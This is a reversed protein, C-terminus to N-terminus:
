LSAIYAKWEQRKNQVWALNHKADELQRELSNICNKTSRELEIWYLEKSDLLKLNSIKNNSKDGDAHYVLEDRTLPRGLHQAMILRHASIRRSRGNGSAMCYFPNDPYIQLAKYKSKNM